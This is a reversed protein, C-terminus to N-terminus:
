AIPCLLGHKAAFNHVHARSWRKENPEWNKPCDHLDQLEQLFRVDGFDDVEFFEAVGTSADAALATIARSPAITGVKFPEEFRACFGLQCGIACGPHHNEPFYSCRGDTGVARGLGDLTLVAHDFLKQRNM